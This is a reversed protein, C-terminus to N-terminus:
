AAPSKCAPTPQLHHTDLDVALNQTCTQPKKFLTQWAKERVQKKRKIAAKSRESPQTIM